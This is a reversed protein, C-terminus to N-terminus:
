SAPFAIAVTDTKETYTITCTKGKKPSMASVDIGAIEGADKLYRGYIKSEFFDDLAARFNSAKTDAYIPNRITRGAYRFTEFLHKNGKTANIKRNTLVLERGIELPNVVQNMADYNYAMDAYAILTGIVDTSM